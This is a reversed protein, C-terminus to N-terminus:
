ALAAGRMPALISPERRAPCAARPCIRCGPGIRLLPAATEDGRVPLILLARPWLRPERWLAADSAASGTDAGVARHRTM